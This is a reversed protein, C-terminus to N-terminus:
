MNFFPQKLPVEPSYPGLLKLKVLKMASGDSCAELFIKFNCSMKFGYSIHILAYELTLILYKLGHSVIRDSFYGQKLFLSNFSFAM